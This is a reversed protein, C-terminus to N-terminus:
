DSSSGALRQLSSKAEKTLRANPAGGALKLLLQRAQLTGILELVRTARVARLSSPTMGSEVKELISQLRRRLEPSPKGDLVRHLDPIAQEGFEELDREAQQRASFSDSDLNTLLRALRAAPLPEEPSLTDRLWSVTHGNRAVLTWIARHAREADIGALADFRSQLEERALPTFTARADASWGTLDWLLATTDDSGSIIQRGSPSFAVSEILGQHGCYRRVEKLTILEFVVLDRCGIALLKSDPSFTIGNVPDDAVSARHVLKGSLADWITVGGKCDGAAMWAGDASLALSHLPFQPPAFNSLPKGSLVDWVWVRGTGGNGNRGLAAVRKGDASFTASNFQYHFGEVYDLGELRRLEKQSSLDWLVLWRDAGGVVLTKSDSSIAATEYYTFRPIPLQFLAKGTRAEWLQLVNGVGALFEGNPSLAASCFFKNDVRFRRFEKGNEASWFRIAEHEVSLITEGNRSFAVCSVSGRHGDPGVEKGARWDWLSVTQDHHLTALTNADCAVRIASIPRPYSPRIRPLPRGTPVQWGHIIGDRGGGFLAKGDPSLAIADIHEGGQDLRDRVRGTSLEWLCLPEKEATAASILTKGDPAFLVSIVPSKHGELQRMLRGSSVEWLQIMGAEDGVALVAGDPSFDITSINTQHKGIRRLRKGTDPERLWIERRHGGTALLTGDPSFAMCSFCEDADRVLSRMKGSVPDWIQLAGCSGGSAFVRGNPAFALCAVYEGGDIRCSHRFNTTAQDWVRLNPERDDAALGGSVLFQGDPSFAIACILDSHRLRLTGLRATAGEPLLDGCPGVSPGRPFAAAPGFMATALIAFVFYARFCKFMVAIELARHGRSVSGNHQRRNVRLERGCKKRLIPKFGM